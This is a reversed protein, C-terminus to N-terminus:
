DHPKSRKPVTSSIHLRAPDFHEVALITFIVAAAFPAAAPGPRIEALGEFRILGALLAILFIDLMSWRGIFEIVSYVRLANLGSVPKRTTWLLWALGGIKGFPVLISAIFVIAAIGWMGHEVLGAVGSFITSNSSGNTMSVSMIPLLNAPVLLILATLMFALSSHISGQPPGAKPIPGFAAHLNDSDMRGFAALMALAAGALLWLGSRPTTEAIDGIKLFAVLVALIFVEPMAWKRAVQLVRISPLWGPFNWNMLAGLNLMALILLATIPFWIVFASAISGLVPMGSANLGEWAVLITAEASLGAKNVELLDLRSAIFFLVLALCTWM